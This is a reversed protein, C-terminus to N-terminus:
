RENASATSVGDPSRRYTRRLADQAAAGLGATTVGIMLVGNIAQLPGLLRWQESMVIDGYGLTAFNVMSHYYAVSFEGFEELWLFLVAWLAAQILNGFVLIITVCALVAMSALLSPSDVWSQHRGYYRAAVLLLYLQVLLCLTMLSVGLLIAIM